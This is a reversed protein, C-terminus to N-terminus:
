LSEPEDAAAGVPIGGPNGDVTGVTACSPYDIEVGVNNIIDAYILHHQKKKIDIGAPEAAGPIVCSTGTPFSEYTTLTTALQDVQVVDEGDASRLGGPFATTAGTSTFAGCAGHPCSGTWLLGSGSTQDKDNLYLTGDKQVTVFQGQFANVMPFNGVFIGNHHWTSISGNESGSSFINSAIVTGDKAVTVDVPVQGTPDTYTKFPSTAGRHFVVVDEGSANAVYLDHTSGEVFMGEVQALGHGSLQGCPRQGAFKGSYINVVSNQYDSIYEIAGLAPCRDFSTFHHGTNFNVKLMGLPSLAIPIRDMLSRGHGQPTSPKPAIASGGSCGVLLVIAAM